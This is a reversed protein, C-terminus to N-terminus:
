FWLGVLCTGTLASYGSFNFQRAIRSMRGGKELQRTQDEPVTLETFGCNLCVVLEPFVWVIANDTNKLEPVHIGIEANFKAQNNSGCSKCTV